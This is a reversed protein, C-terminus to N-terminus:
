HPHEQDAGLRHLPRLVRTRCPARSIMENKEIVLATTPTIATATGIRLTQGALCREGFFDGPGLVAVEAEKGSENVM